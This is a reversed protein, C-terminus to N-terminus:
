YMTKRRSFSVTACIIKLFGKYNVFGSFGNGHEHSAAMRGGEQVTLIRDM